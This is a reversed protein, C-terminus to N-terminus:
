FKAGALEIGKGLPHGGRGARRPGVEGGGIQPSRDGGLVGDFPGSLEGDVFLRSRTAQIHSINTGM